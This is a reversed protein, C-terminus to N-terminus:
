DNHLQLTLNRALHAMTIRSKQQASSGLQRNPHNLVLRQRIRTTKEIVQTCNSSDVATTSSLAKEEEADFGSMERGLERRSPPSTCKRHRTNLSPTADNESNAPHRRCYTGNRQISPKKKKKETQAGNTQSPRLKKRSRIAHQTFDVCLSTNTEM